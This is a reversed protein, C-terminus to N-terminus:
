PMESLSTDQHNYLFCPTVETPLGFGGQDLLRLRATCRAQVFQHLPM